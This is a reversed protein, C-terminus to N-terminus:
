LLAYFSHLTRWSWRLHSWTWSKGLDLLFFIVSIISAAMGSFVFLCVVQLTDIKLPSNLLVSNKALNRPLERERKYTLNSTSTHTAKDFINTLPLLHQIFILNLKINEGKLSSHNCSLYGLSFKSLRVLSFSASRSCCCLYHESIKAAGTSDEVANIVFDGCCTSFLFLAEQWFLM